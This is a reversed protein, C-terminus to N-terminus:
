VLVVVNKFKADILTQAAVLARQGSQCRCAIQRHEELENLRGALETLPINIDVNKFPQNVVELETRVDLVIGDVNLESTTQIPSFRDPEPANSFDVVQMAYNWLELSLIKGMLIDSDDMLVKLAEQAMLNAIVGVAPGTVGASECSQTVLPPKPFIARYSPAPRQDTGCFVGLYGSTKLVSGSIMPKGLQACLDSLLYSVVFSDAADIILSHSEILSRANTPSLKESIGSVTVCSNVESLIKEAVQVKPKGVHIETYLNQRHLNSLSVDDHDILTLRGVGAGSLTRAIPCGLGGMGVILM